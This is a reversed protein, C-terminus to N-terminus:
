SHNTFLKTLVLLFVAKRAPVHQKRRQSMHALQVQRIFRAEQQRVNSVAGHQRVTQHNNEPAVNASAACASKTPPRSHPHFSCPDIDVVARVNFFRHQHYEVSSKHQRYSRLVVRVTFTIRQSDACSSADNSQQCVNNTFVDKRIM